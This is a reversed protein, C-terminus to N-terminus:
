IRQANKNLEKLYAVNSYISNNVNKIRNQKITDVIEKIGDELSYSPAWGADKIKESSVRYNRADEFKIDVLEVESGPCIEVVKKALESINYNKMSLNYVGIPILGDIAQLTATAVDKVHLLPRWQQGGYVTLKEGRAARCALVNAVLDLRIRSYTDGMGFLTGLRFIVYNNHNQVIYKEAELKTEAYLSLPNTPSSEDLLENNMGYVSCTSPFIIKGKYNDVLKKVSDVNIARTEVPDIACAGDGVIGALWIITNYKDLDKYIEPDRVDGYIFPIENLYRDEYILNDLVTQDYYYLKLLQTIASGVYGAGGVILIKNDMNRLRMM